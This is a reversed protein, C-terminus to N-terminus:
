SMERGKPSLGLSLTKARRIIEIFEATEKFVDDSCVIASVVAAMDSGASIISEVNGRKIGGIAVIPLKVVSRVRSIMSIGCGKGADTKTATDFIPSLGIYDAGLKEPSVSGPGLM